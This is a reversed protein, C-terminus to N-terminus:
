CSTNRKYGFQKSENLIPMYEILIHELLGTLVTSISIPRYDKPGRLEGKKPIPKLM